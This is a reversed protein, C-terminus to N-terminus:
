YVGCMGDISIEEVLLEEEVLEDEPVAPEDAPRVDTTTEMHRLTGRAAPPSGRRAARHGDPRRRDRRGIRDHEHGAAPFPRAWNGSWGSRHQVGTVAVSTKGSSSCSRARSTCARAERSRIISRRRRTSGSLVASAIVASYTSIVTHSASSDSREGPAPSNKPRMSVVSPGPGSGSRQYM